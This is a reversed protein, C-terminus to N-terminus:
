IPTRLLARDDGKARGQAGGEEPQLMRLEVCREPELARRELRMRLGANAAASM